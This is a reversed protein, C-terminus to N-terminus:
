RDTDSNMKLPNGYSISTLFRFDQTEDTLDADEALTGGRAIVDENADAMKPVRIDRGQFITVFPTIKIKLFAAVVQQCLLYSLQSLTSKRVSM